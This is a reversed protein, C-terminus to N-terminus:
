RIITGIKKGFVAHFYCSQMGTPHTGGTRQGYRGAHEAGPPDGRPLPTQEPTDAGSPHRSRPTDTRPSTQEPPTDAGPPDAGPPTDAGLPTSQERPTYRTQPTYRTLYEGQQPCVCAQLCIVKGWVKNVAPLLKSGLSPRM